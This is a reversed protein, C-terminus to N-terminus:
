WVMCEGSVFWCSISAEQSGNKDIFSSSHPLKMWNGVLFFWPTELPVIEQHWSTKQMLQSITNADHHHNWAWFVSPNLHIATYPRMAWIGANSIKDGEREISAYIYIYKKHIIYIYIYIKKQRNPILAAASHKMKQKAVETQVPACTRMDCGIKGRHTKCVSNPLCWKWLSCSCLLWKHCYIERSTHFNHVEQPHKNSSPFYCIGAAGFKWTGTRLGPPHSGYLGWKLSLTYNLHVGWPVESSDCEDWSFM